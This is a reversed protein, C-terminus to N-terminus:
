MKIQKIENLAFSETTEVLQPKQVLLGSKFYTQFYYEKGAELDIKIIDKGLSKLLIERKGPEVNITQYDKNKLTVFKEGDIYIKHDWGMGSISKPRFIHIIANEESKQAFFSTTLM